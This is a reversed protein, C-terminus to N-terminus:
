DCCISSTESCQPFLPGVFYYILGLFMDSTRFVPICVHTYVCVFFKIQNCIPEQEARRFRFMLLYFFSLLFNGCAIYLIEKAECLM